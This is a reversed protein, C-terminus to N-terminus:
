CLYCCKKSEKMIIMMFKLFLFLSFFFSLPVFRSLSSSPLLLFEMMKSDLNLISDSNLIEDVGYLRLISDPSSSPQTADVVV